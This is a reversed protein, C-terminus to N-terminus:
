SKRVRGRRDIARLRSGNTGSYFDVAHRGKSDEVSVAFQGGFISPSYRASIKRISATSIGHKNFLNALVGPYKNIANSLHKSPAGGSSTGSLFDVTIFGGKSQSAEGFIDLDNAGILLSEGSAVSWALNHGISRLENFRM